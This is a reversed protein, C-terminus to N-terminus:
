LKTKKRNISRLDGITQLIHQYEDWRSRNVPTLYTKRAVELVNLLQKVQPGSLLHTTLAASRLGHYQEFPSVPNAITELILGFVDATPNTQLVLLVMMRYGPTDRSFMERLVKTQFRTSSGLLYVQDVIVSNLVYNRLDGPLKPYLADYLHAYTDIEAIERQSISVKGSNKPESRSIRIKNGPKKRTLAKQLETFGKKYDRFTHCPGETDGSLTVTHSDLHSDTRNCGGSNQKGANRM